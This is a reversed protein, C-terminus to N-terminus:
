QHGAKDPETSLVVLRKCARRKEIVWLIVMESARWLPVGRKRGLLHIPHTCM